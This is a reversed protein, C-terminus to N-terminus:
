NKMNMVNSKRVQEQAWAKLIAAKQEPNLTAIYECQPCKQGNRILGHGHECIYFGGILMEGVGSLASCSMAGDYEEIYKSNEKRNAWVIDIIKNFTEKEVILDAL